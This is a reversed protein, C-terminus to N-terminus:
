EFSIYARLSSFHFYSSFSGILSSAMLDIGLSEFIHFYFCFKSFLGFSTNMKSICDKTGGIIFDSVQLKWFELWYIFFVSAAM